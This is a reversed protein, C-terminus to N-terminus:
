DFITPFAVESEPMDSTSSSSAEPLYFATFPNVIPRNM